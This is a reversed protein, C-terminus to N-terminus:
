NIKGIRCISYLRERSESSKKLKIVCVKVSVLVGDLQTQSALLLTFGLSNSKRLGAVFDLFKNRYLHNRAKIVVKVNLNFASGQCLFFNWVNVINVLSHM